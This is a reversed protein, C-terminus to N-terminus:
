GIADENRLIKQQVLLESAPVISSDNASPGDFATELTHVEEEIGIEHLAALSIFLDVIMLYKAEPNTDTPYRHEALVFIGVSATPENELCYSRLESFTFSRLREELLRLRSDGTESTQRLPNHESPPLHTYEL